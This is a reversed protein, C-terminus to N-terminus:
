SGFYGILRWWFYDIPLLVILSMAAVPITIRFVRSLRLGAIQMGLIMPPVQYPFVATTVGLAMALLAAKIPWGRSARAVEAGSAVEADADAARPFPTVGALPASDETTDSRVFNRNATKATKATTM